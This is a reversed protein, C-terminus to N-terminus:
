AARREQYHGLSAILAPLNSETIGFVKEVLAKGSEWAPDRATNSQLAHIHDALMGLAVLRASASPREGTAPMSKQPEHHQQIADSIATPLYWGQALLSGIWAHDVDLINIAGVSETSGAHNSFRSGGNMQERLLLAAHGCDRFLAFTHVEPRDLGPIEAVLANMTTASKLTECWYAKLAASDGEPFLRKLLLNAIVLGTNRLGLFVCAQHVSSAKRALGFFPANVTKLVAAALGPDSLILDAIRGYDPESRGMEKVIQIVIAPCPPIGITAVLREAERNVSRYETDEPM